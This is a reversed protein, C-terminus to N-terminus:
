QASYTGSTSGNSVNATLTNNSRTQIQSPGSKYLGTANNVISSNSVRVVASESSLIGYGNGITLCDELTMQSSGAGRFGVSTNGAAVSSRVTVNSKNGALIGQYNDELRVRELAARLINSSSSSTNNVYVGNDCGRVTTDKVTLQSNANLSMFIGRSGSYAFDRIDCNEVLVAAGAVFYVGHSIGSQSVARITLGRLVVVDTSGADVKIGYPDLGSVKVGADAGPAATITLPKQINLTGYSGSDLIVIEGGSVVQNYAEQLTTCPATFACSNAPLGNKESIYARTLTQAQAAVAALMAALAFGILNLTTRKKM